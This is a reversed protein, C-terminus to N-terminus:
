ILGAGGGGDVMLVVMVMVDAVAVGGGVAAPFGDPIKSVPPVIDVNVGDSDGDDDEVDRLDVKGVVDVGKNYLIFM